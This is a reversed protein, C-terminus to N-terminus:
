EMTQNEEETAKPAAKSAIVFVNMIALSFWIITLILNLNASTMVGANYYAGAMFANIGVLFIQAGILVLKQM